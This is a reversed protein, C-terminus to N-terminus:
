VEHVDMYMNYVYQLDRIPVDRITDRENARWYTNLLKFSLHSDPM